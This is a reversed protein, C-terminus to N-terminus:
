LSRTAAIWLKRMAQLTDEDIAEPRTTPAASIWLSRMAELTDEDV